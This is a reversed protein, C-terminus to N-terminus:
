RVKESSQRDDHRWVRDEEMRVKETEGKTKNELM